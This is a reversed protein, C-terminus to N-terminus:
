EAAEVLARFADGREVYNSFQDLSACAPSLLVLDGPQASSRGAEFASALDDARRVPCASGLADALVAADSGFVVALRVRGEAAAALESFDAAKSEGGALLVVPVDLGQLAAITSAPNTAKSDNVYTVGGIEAIRETRHPLGRFAALAGTVRAPEIGVADLMALAALANSQNHRGVMKLEGVPLLANRGKALFTEGDRDILGFGDATPPGLGYSITHELGAAAASVRHDDRNFIAVDARQLVSAKIAAYAEISGHRDLHDPSVNTVAGAALRLNATTELQFSSLELVYYDPVRRELLDLAAPGLNGGAQADLGAARLLEAVLTTVTSKGNSGTVGLVPAEAADLFIEIDSTVPIGAHAARQAIESNAAVGPSLVLREFDALSEPVDRHLVVAAGSDANEDWVEVEVGRSQYYRAVSQGTVGYGAVLVPLGTESVLSTVALM